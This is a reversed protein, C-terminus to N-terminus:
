QIARVRFKDLLVDSEWQPLRNEPGDIVVLPPTCGALNNIKQWLTTDGWYQPKTDANATYKFIEAPTENGASVAVLALSELRGLGTEPDPLEQLWRKVAAPIWQVPADTMESLKIFVEKDQLAFAKDVSVAFCFQKDTVKVERGFSDKLQEPSLQGVGNYPDIGPYNDICILNINEIFELHHLCSLIHVLMSQDFLCADFWLIVSDFNSVEKLKQYQARFTEIVLSQDLGGGTTEEIFAARALLTEGTPWGINRPGEYMIDHWVFVEGPIGSKTLSGGVIDGSTIHLINSM